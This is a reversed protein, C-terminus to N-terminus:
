IKKTAVIFLKESGSSTKTREMDFFKIATFWGRLADREDPHWYWM